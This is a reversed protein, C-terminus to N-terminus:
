WDAEYWSANYRLSTRPSRGAGSNSVQSSEIPSSSSFPPIRSVVPAAWGSVAIPFSSAAHAFHGYLCTLQPRRQPLAGLGADAEAAGTGGEGGPVAQFQLRRVRGGPVGVTRTRLEAGSRRM